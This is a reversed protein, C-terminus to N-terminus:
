DAELQLEVLGDDTEYCTGDCTESASYSLEDGDVALVTVGAVEYEAVASYPGLPLSISGGSTGSWVLTGDEYTSGSYVRISKLTGGGTRIELTASTPRSSECDWPAPTCEEGDEDLCGALLALCFIAALGGRAGGRGTREKMREGM